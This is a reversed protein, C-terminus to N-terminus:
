LQRFFPGWYNSPKSRQSSHPNHLECLYQHTICSSFIIMPKTQRKKKLFLLRLSHPIKTAAFVMKVSDNISFDAVCIHGHKYTTRFVPNTSFRQQSFGLGVGKWRFPSETPDCFFQKMLMSEVPSCNQKGHRQGCFIPPVFTGLISQLIGM